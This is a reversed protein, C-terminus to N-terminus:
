ILIGGGGGVGVGVWGGRLNRCTLFLSHITVNFCGVIRHLIHIGRRLNHQVDRLNQVDELQTYIGECLKLIICSEMHSCPMAM